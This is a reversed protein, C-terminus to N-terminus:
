PLAYTLWRGAIEVSVFCDCILPTGCICVGLGKVWDGRCLWGGYGTVGKECPTTMDAVRASFVYFKHGLDSAYPLHSLMSGAM